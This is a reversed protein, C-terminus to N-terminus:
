HIDEGRDLEAHPAHLRVYFCHRCMVVSVILMKHDGEITQEAAGKSLKLLGFEYPAEFWNDSGCAPCDRNADRSILLNSLERSDVFSDDWM